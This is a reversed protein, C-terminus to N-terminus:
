IHILSLPRLTNVEVFEITHKSLDNLNLFLPIKKNRPPEYPDNM